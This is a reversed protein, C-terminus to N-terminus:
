RSAREFTANRLFGAPMQLASHGGLQQHAQLLADLQPDRLMVQTEGTAALGQVTVAQTADAAMQQQQGFPWGWVGVGVVAALVMAALGSVWQWRFVSANASVGPTGVTEQSAVPRQVAPELELRKQLRLVFDLDDAGVALDESRLVDGIVHYHHWQNVLEPHTQMEQMLSAIDAQALHGDALASVREQLEHQKHEM